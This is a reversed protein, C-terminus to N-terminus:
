EESSDLYFNEPMTANEDGVRHKKTGRIMVTQIEMGYGPM